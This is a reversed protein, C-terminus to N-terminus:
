VIIFGILILTVISFIFSFLAWYFLSVKLSIINITSEISNSVNKIINGQFDQLTDNSHNELITNPLPLDSFLGDTGKSFYNIISDNLALLLLILTIVITVYFCDRLIIVQIEQVGIIDNGMKDIFGLFLAILVATPQLVYLSKIELHHKRELVIELEKLSYDYIEKLIDDKM